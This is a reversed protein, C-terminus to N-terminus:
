TELEAVTVAAPKMKTAYSAKGLLVITRALAMSISLIVFFASVAPKGTIHLTAAFHAIQEHLGHDSLYAFAYRALAVGIWISAYSIGAIAWLKDRSIKVRISMGAVVGLLAGIAGSFIYIGVDGGM